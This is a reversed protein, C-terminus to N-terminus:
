GAARQRLLYVFTEHANASAALQDNLGLSLMGGEELEEFMTTVFDIYDGELQLGVQAIQEAKLDVPSPYREMISLATDILMRPCALGVNGTLGIAKEVAGDVEGQISTYIRDYLVAHDGSFSTGKVVHHAGHFWLHLARLWGIRHALLDQAREDMLM